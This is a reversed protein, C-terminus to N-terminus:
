VNVVVRGEKVKGEIVATFIVELKRLRKDISLALETVEDVEDVNEITEIMQGQLLDTSPNKILTEEYYPFGLEPGLKWENAFWRLRITIAQMVSDTFQIDGNADLAIDGGSNLLIDKM